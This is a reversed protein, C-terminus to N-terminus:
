YRRYRSSSSGFGYGRSYGGRSGSDYAVGDGDDLLGHSEPDDDFYEENGEDDVLYTEDGRRILARESEMLRKAEERVIQRLKSETLRM